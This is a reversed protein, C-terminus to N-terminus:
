CIVPRCKMKPQINGPESRGLRHQELSNVNSARVSIALLSEARHQLCDGLVRGCPELRVGELLLNASKGGRFATAALLM